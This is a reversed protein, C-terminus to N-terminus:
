RLDVLHSPSSSVNEASASWYVDSSRSTGLSATHGALSSAITIFSWVTRRAEERMIEGPEHECAWSATYRWLPTHKLLEPHHEGLCLDECKCARKHQLPSSYPLINPDHPSSQLLTSSSPWRVNPGSPVKPYRVLLHNIDQAPCQDPNSIKGSSCSSDLLRNPDLPTARSNFRTVLPNDADVSTYKLLRLINDVRAMASRTKQLSHYPHPQMEYMALFQSRVHPREMIVQFPLRIIRVWAAQALGIDVWGVALSSDVAAEAHAKLRAARERGWVGGEAESSKFFIALSLASMLLGPQLETRLEPSYLKAWLTPVHIFSFWWSARTFLHRLDTYISNSARTRAESNLTLTSTHYYEASSIQMEPSAYIDLLGDFWTKQM